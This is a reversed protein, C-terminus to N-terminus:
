ISSFHVAEDMMVAKSQEIRARTADLERRNSETVNSGNSKSRKRM